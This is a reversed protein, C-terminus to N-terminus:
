LWRRVSKRYRVYAEGFKQELYREERAVVGYRIIALLPVALVLVWLSNAAVGIGAYILTLSLYMPNRSFRYPGSTVVATAPQHVDVNTGARRFARLAAAVIFAGLIILLIGAPYRITEAVVRSPWIANLVLGLVLAGAYLLPPKAIVGPRDRESSSAGAEVADSNTM